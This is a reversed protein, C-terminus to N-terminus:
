PIPATTFTQLVRGGSVRYIAFQRDTSGRMEFILEARNDGDADVADVFRMRQKVDLHGADTVYQFLLHPVGYFDPQAILTVYREAPGDANKASFVLTAGGNYALEFTSLKEDALPLAPLPTKRAAARRAAATHPTAKKPTAPTTGPVPQTLPTWGGLALAKRAMEELATQAKTLDEPSSWSYAFSHPEIKSTDSVAAMQQLDTPTGSLKTPEVDAEEGTPVGRRLKPRNPDSSSLATVPAGSSGQDGTKKHLTPREPDVSTSKSDGAPESSGSSGHKHLTPRDPDEPTDKPASTSPDTGSGSPQSDGSSDRRHLTPKNPDTSGSDKSDSAAPKSGADTKDELKPHDPDVEKVVTPAVKSKALKPQKPVKLPKWIGYGYWAGQMSEASFVDFLGQPTGAQELEHNGRQGAPFDIDRGCQFCVRGSYHTAM